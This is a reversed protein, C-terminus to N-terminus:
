LNDYPDVWDIFHHETRSRKMDLIRQNASGRYKLALNKQALIFPGEVLVDIANLIDLAIPTAVGSCILQEVEYGTFCWIDKNPFVSRVRKILKLVGPQNAPEFPEGGLISLGRINPHSLLELIYITKKETIPEGYNFDWAAQNFCGECKRTCGSVFVSVRCGPGNAVDFNKITAINM